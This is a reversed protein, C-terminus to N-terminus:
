IMRSRNTPPTDAVFDVGMLLASQVTYSVASGQGGLIESQLFQVFGIDRTELCYRQWEVTDYKQHFATVSDPESRRPEVPPGSSEKLRPLLASCVNNKTKRPIVPIM